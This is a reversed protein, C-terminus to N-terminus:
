NALLVPPNLLAGAVMLPIVERAPLSRYTPGEFHARWTQYEEFPADYGVLALWFALWADPNERNGDSWRCVAATAAAAGPHLELGAVQPAEATGPCLRAVDRGLGIFATRWILFSTANPRANAFENSVGTGQWAGLLMTLDPGSRGLYSTLQFGEPGRVFRGLLAQNIADYGKYGAVKVEPAPAPSGPPDLPAMGGGPGGCGPSALVVVSMGSALILRASRLPTM